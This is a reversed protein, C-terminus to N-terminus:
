MFLGVRLIQVSLLISNKLVRPSAFVLNWSTKLSTEPHIQNVFMAAHPGFLACVLDTLGFTESIQISGLHSLNCVVNVM